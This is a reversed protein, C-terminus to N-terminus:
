DELEAFLLAIQRGREATVRGRAQTRAGAEAITREADTM